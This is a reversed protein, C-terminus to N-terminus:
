LCFLRVTTSLTGTWTFPEQIGQLKFNTTLIPLSYLAEFGKGTELL